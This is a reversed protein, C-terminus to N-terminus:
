IGNCPESFLGFRFFMTFLVAYVSSISTINFVLISKRLDSLRRTSTSAHGYLYIPLPLQAAVRRAIENVENRFRLSSINSEESNDSSDRIPSFCLHDVSGLSPHSGRHQTYDISEIAEKCIKVISAEFADSWGPISLSSPLSSSPLSPATQLIYLSTRCYVNDEFSHVLKPYPDEKKRKVVLSALRSLLPASTSSVYIICLVGSM